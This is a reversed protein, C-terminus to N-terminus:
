KLGANENLLNQFWPKAKNAISRGVDKLILKNEKLTDAEESGIDNMLWRLFDGMKQITPEEGEFIENVAQNLRNETVTYEVFEKISNIKEPNVPAITKTNSTTHKRGKTKLIHRNGDYYGTWVIGEGIGEVGLAKGVPCENEVKEVLEVFKNQALEPYNFDVEVQYTEFDNINYIDHEPSCLDKSDIYYSDGEEPVVKVAFIVFMRPLKSIATGNAIGQGCYEGFISIIGPNKNNSYTRFIVDDLLEKLIETRDYCFQWFGQNDGKISLIRRRSQFWMEGTNSVCFSGNSGHCKVTGEFTLIPKPANPNLIPENDQDLGEFQAQNNVNRIVDRFQPIKTFAVHRQKM